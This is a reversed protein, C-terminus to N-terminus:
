LGRNDPRQNRGNSSQAVGVVWECPVVQRM